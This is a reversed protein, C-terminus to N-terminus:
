PQVLMTMQYKVLAPVRVFGIMPSFPMSASLTVVTLSPAPPPLLSTGPSANWTVSLYNIPSGPAQLDGIARAKAKSQASAAPYTAGYRVGDRIAAVLAYRQFFYWGYDIIGFLVM